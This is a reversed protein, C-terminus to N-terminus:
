RLLLPRNWEMSGNQHLNQSSAWGMCAKIQKDFHLSRNRVSEPRQYVDSEHVSSTSLIQIESGNTFVGRAESLHPVRWDMARESWVECYAM